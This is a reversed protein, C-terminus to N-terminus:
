KKVLASVVNIIKNRLEESEVGRTKNGLGPKLNMMSDFKIFDVGQNEPYLNIGWLDKPESHEEKELLEFLDSHLGADVAMINKEVDVIVKVLEPMMKKAMEKLEAITIKDKVIKM